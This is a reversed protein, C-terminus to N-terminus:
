ANHRLFDGFAQSMDEAAAKMTELNAEILGALSTRTTMSSTILAM